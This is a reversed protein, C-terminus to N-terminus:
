ATGAAGDQLGYFARANGTVLRALTAADTGRMTAVAACTHQVFAPENRRGRVPVPALYPADTEILLRNDPVARVLDAGEFRRFTVMGAFSVWWGSELATDLLASDGAFCHLVGHVGASAAARVAAATDDEASRSHVILPLGSDAALAIHRDLLTRQVDRPSHDYHYDLGTEGVAVVRAEGLLEHIREIDDAHAAAAEHPHIGATCWVDEHRRALELAARADAADSAITVIGVLGAHRARELVADVDGAFAEATLHCHSDFLSLPEGGSM